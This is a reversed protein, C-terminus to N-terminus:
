AKNINTCIDGTDVKGNFCFLDLLRCGETPSVFVSGKGNFFLFFCLWCLIVGNWCSSSTSRGGSIGGNGLSGILLM